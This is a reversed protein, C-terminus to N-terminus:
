KCIVRQVRQVRQYSRHGMQKCTYCAGNMFPENRTLEPRPKFSSYRSANATEIKSLLNISLEEFKQVLAEYMNQNENSHVKTVVKEANEIRNGPYKHSDVLKLLDVKHKITELAQDFDTIKDRFVM